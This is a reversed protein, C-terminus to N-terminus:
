HTEIFWWQYTSTDTGSSSTLTFSVGNSRTVTLNGVGGGPTLMAYGVLTVLGLTAVLNWLSNIAIGAAAPSSGIGYSGLMSYQVGLGIAGGVTPIGNSMAYSTQRVM